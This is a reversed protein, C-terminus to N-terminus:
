TEVVTVVQTVQVMVVMTMVLTMGKVRLVTVVFNVDDCYVAHHICIDSKNHHHHPITIHHLTPPCTTRRIALKKLRWGRDGSRGCCGLVATPPPTM